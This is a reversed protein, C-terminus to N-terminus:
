GLLRQIPEPLERFDACAALAGADILEAAPEGTTIGCVRMGAARAALVGLRADEFVLIDAPAVGLRRAGELFLDPAPKGRAVEDGGVVAQLRARLGLGDLVFDRNKRPAASAVGAAIGRAALQALLADAGAILQLDPAYLERYRAEKQEALQAVEAPTLARGAVIPLIEENRRGAFDRMVQEPTLTAGLTRAIELWAVSHHRMNDVLTGDLDFLVGRVTRDATM